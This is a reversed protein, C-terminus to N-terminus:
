ISNSRQGSRKLLIGYGMWHVTEKRLFDRSWIVSGSFILRAVTQHKPLYTRKASIHFAGVCLQLSKFASESYIYYIYENFKTEFYFNLYMHSLVFRFDTYVQSAKHYMYQDFSKLKKTKFKGGNSYTNCLGM